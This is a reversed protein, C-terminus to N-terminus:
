KARKAKAKLTQNQQAQQQRMQQKIQDMQQNMQSNVGKELDSKFQEMAVPAESAVWQMVALFGAVLVCVVTIGGMFLMNGRDMKKRGRRSKTSHERVGFDPAMQPAMQHPMQPSNTIPNEVPKDTPPPGNTKSISVVPEPPAPTPQAPPPEPTQSPSPTQQKPTTNRSNLADLLDSTNTTAEAPAKPESKAANRKLAELIDNEPPTSPKAADTSEAATGYLADMSPATNTEPASPSTAPQNYLASIADTKAPSSQTERKLHKEIEDLLTRAKFPKKIIGKVGQARLEESVQETVFGSVVVVPIDFGQSVIFDLISTGHITPMKLDLLILDPNEHNLADLADTWKTASVAQYKNAELIDVILDVIAQEDDITLIKKTTSTTAM